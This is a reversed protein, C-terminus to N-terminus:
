WRIWTAPTTSSSTWVALSPTRLLSSNISRKSSKIDGAVKSIRGGAKEIVMATDDAGAQEEPLFSLM